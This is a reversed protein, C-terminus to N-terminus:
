QFKHTEQVVNAPPSKRIGYVRQQIDDVTARVLDTLMQKGINAMFDEGGGTSTGKWASVLQALGPLTGNLISLKDATPLDKLDTPPPTKPPTTGTPNAGDGKLAVLLNNFENILSDLKQNTALQSDKIGATFEAIRGDVINYLKNLKAQDEDASTIKSKHAQSTNESIDGYQFDRSEPFPSSTTTGPPGSKPPNKGNPNKPDTM